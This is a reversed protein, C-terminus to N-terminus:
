AAAGRRLLVRHRHGGWLAAGLAGAYISQEHALVKMPVGEEKAKQELAQVLGVDAALGGTLAVV